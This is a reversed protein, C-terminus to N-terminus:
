SFLFIYWVELHTISSLLLYAKTALDLGINDVDEVSRTWEKEFLWSRREGSNLLHDNLGEVCRKLAMYLLNCLSLLM